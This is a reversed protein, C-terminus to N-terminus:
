GLADQTCDELQHAVESYFGSIGARREGSRDSLSIEDYVSLKM